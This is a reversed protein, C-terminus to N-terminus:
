LCATQGPCLALAMKMKATRSISCRLPILSYGKSMPGQCVAQKIEHKHLLLKRVRLPDHNGYYAFPYPSINCSTSLSKM